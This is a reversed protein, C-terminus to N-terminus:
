HSCLTKLKPIPYKNRIHLQNKPPNKFQLKRCIFWIYKYAQPCIFVTKKGMWILPRSWSHTVHCRRRSVHIPLKIEPVMSCWFYSMKSERSPLFRDDIAWWHSHRCALVGFPSPSWPSSQTTSPMTLLKVSSSVPSNVKKKLSVILYQYLIHVAFSRTLIHTHQIYRSAPQWCSHEIMRHHELSPSLRWDDSVCM